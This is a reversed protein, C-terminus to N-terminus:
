CRVAAVSAEKYVTMGALPLLDQLKAASLSKTGIDAPNVETAVKATAIRGSRVLDQVFFFKTEVHKFRNGAGM